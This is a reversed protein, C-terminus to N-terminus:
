LLKFTQPELELSIDMSKYSHTLAGISIFDVGTEAVSRVNKLNIGGSAEVEARGAITEVARAMEMISMNDLMVIDAGAEVADLAEQITTAEAEVIMGPQANKKARTVIEKYSMGLARLAAIHNDKILIADYLDMRHNRGGGMRVAYKELARLVPTTKRTDAIDVFLDRTQEVYQATTSAIGSLRQIFNLAVREAKLISRVNGTVILPVDGNNVTSGDKIQIDVVLAPDVQHFVREVVTTGAIVGKEKVLLYAHGQLDSPILTESTIDGKGVDEALAIVVIKDVYDIPLEAIQKEKDTEM